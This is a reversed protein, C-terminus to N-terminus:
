SNKLQKRIWAYAIYLYFCIIIERTFNSICIKNVIVFNRPKHVDKGDGQNEWSM